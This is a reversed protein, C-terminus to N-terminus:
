GEKRGLPVAELAGNSGAQRKIKNLMLGLWKQVDSASEASMKEPLSLTVVGEPLTLVDQKVAM